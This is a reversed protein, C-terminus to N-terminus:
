GYLLSLAFRSVWNLKKVWSYFIVVINDRIHTLSEIKRTKYVLEQEVKFGEILDFFM